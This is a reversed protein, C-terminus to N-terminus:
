GAPAPATEPGPSPGLLSRARIRAQSILLDPAAAARRSQWPRPLVQSGPPFEAQLPSARAPRNTALPACDYQVAPRAAPLPRTIGIALGTRSFASASAARLTTSDPQTVCPGSTAAKSRSNAACTSTAYAHATELQVVASCRARSALPTPSPSSTIAGVWEKM